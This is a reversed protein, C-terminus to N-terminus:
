RNVRTGCDLLPEDGVQDILRRAYEVAELDLDMICNTLFVLGEVRGTRLWDLGLRCQHEMADLPMPASAGFDWMYVGLLKRTDPAIEELRRFNSELDKLDRAKWTWFTIADVADLHAKVPKDLDHTYLVVYLDLPQKAAHLQRRFGSIQDPTYRGHDGRFFDDMMAGSLNPFERGLAIVEKLDPQQDNAKSSADGVISWVIRNLRRMPLAHQRFPPEPQNDFRVFMLNPVGLCYAGEVPTMRSKGPLGFAGGKNYSGAQHGWLWLADRITRAAKMERRVVPERGYGSVVVVGVLVCILCPRTSKM